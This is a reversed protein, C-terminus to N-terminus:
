AVCQMNREHAIREAAALLRPEVQECRARVQKFTMGYDAAIQEYTKGRYFHEYALGACRPIGALSDEMPPYTARAPAEFRGDHGSPPAPTVRPGPYLDLANNDRSARSATHSDFDTENHYVADRRKEARAEDICARQATCVVHGELPGKAADWTSVAECCALAAVQEFDENWAGKLASRGARLATAIHQSALSQQESTLKM